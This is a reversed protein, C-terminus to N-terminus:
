YYYHSYKKLLLHFCYNHIISGHSKVISLLQCKQMEKSVSHKQKQCDSFLSWQRQSIAPLQLLVKLRRVCKRYLSQKQSLVKTTNMQFPCPLSVTTDLNKLSFKLAQRLRKVTKIRKFQNNLLNNNIETAKVAVNQLCRPSKQIEFFKSKSVVRTKAM